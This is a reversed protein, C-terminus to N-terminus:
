DANGMVCTFYKMSVFMNELSHKALWCNLFVPIFLNRLPPWLLQLLLVFCCYTLFNLLIISKVNTIYQRLLLGIRWALIHTNNRGIPKLYTYIPSPLIINFHIKLIHSPSQDSDPYPCTVPAQSHPLSCEPQM